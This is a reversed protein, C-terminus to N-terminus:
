PMVDGQRETLMLRTPHMIYQVSEYLQSYFKQMYLESQNGQNEFYINNYQTKLIISCARLQGAKRKMNCM